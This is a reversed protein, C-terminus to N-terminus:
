LDVNKKDVKNQWMHEGDSVLMKLRICGNIKEKEWVYVTNRILFLLFYFVCETRNSKEICRVKKKEKITM